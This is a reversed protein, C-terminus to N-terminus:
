SADGFMAVVSPQKLERFYRKPSSFSYSKKQLKQLAELHCDIAEKINKYAEEYTKGWSVCGPLAPCLASYAEGDKEIKIQLLLYKSM